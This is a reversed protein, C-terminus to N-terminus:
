SHKPNSPSSGFQFTTMSSFGIGSILGLGPSSWCYCTKSRHTDSDRSKKSTTALSEVLPANLNLDVNAQTQNRIEATHLWCSASNTNVVPACQVDRVAYAICAILRVVYVYAHLYDCDCYLCGRRMMPEQHLYYPSIRGPCVWRLGCKLTFYWGVYMVILM